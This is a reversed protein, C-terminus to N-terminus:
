GAAQTSPLTQADALDAIEVIETDLDLATSTVPKLAERAQDTEAERWLRLLAGLTERMMAGANEARTQLETAM